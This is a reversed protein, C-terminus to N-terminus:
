EHCFAGVDLFSLMIAFIKSDLDVDRRTISHKSILWRPLHPHTWRSDVFIRAPRPLESACTFLSPRCTLRSSRRPRRILLTMNLIQPSHNFLKGAPPM